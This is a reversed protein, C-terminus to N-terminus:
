YEGCIVKEYKEGCVEYSFEKARNISIQAYHERLESDKILMQIAKALDKDCQENYISYNEKKQMGKVLIGYDGKIIRETADDTCKDELLIERPGTMCDSAIVPKGCAMAEVLANPFGERVSSLVYIDARKMYEYPYMSFGELLVKKGLNLSKILEKMKEGNDQYDEGVISVGINPYKESLIKVSKILHWYGKEPRLTGVSVIYPNFCPKNINEHNDNSKTIIDDVDYANYITILKRKDLRFDNRLKEEIGKSVCIIKDARKYLVKAILKNSLREASAYGRISPITKIGRIKCLLNIYNPGVGFSICAVPRYKKLLFTLKRCRVLVKKVRHFFSTESFEGCKMDLLTGSIDYRVCSGDFVVIFVQYKEKLIKELRSVFREQGGFNLQSLFLFICEREMINM